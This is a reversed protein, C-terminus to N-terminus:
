FEGEVWAEILKAAADPHKDVWQRVKTLMARTKLRESKLEKFIEEGVLEKALEEPNVEVLEEEEEEEPGIVESVKKGVIQEAVPEEGVAAATAAAEVAGEPKEEKAPVEESSIVYRVLPRIVFLLLLILFVFFAAYKILALLFERQEMKKLEEAQKKALDNRFRINVVEVKDGRRRDYGIAAMVLRKIADIEQPSLPKYVEVVKKGKKEKVYYGDVIVSATIKKIFGPPIEVKETTKSIEYNRTIKQKSYNIINKSLIQQAPGLNSEVGPIGGAGPVKGQAKEIIQQESRVVNEPDYLEKYREIKSFDLEVSVKAVAKGPGLAENLMSMIKKEYLKELKRRYELRDLAVKGLNEKEEALMETLDVGNTDVVTVNQPKLGEVASAVLHVIARVQEPKLTYGPKLKVVVTAKPPQQEELFVSKKPLVLLVRADEIPKLEMITRALEGQLARVYNVHEMFETMGINTKDFIEFGVGPGRPLGKAAFELRLAYVRNKPVLITKGNKELKYPINRAQLEKVIEGADKPSLNSFLVGYEQRNGVFAVAILAIFASLAAGLIVYRQWKPLNQIPEVIGKLWRPLEM